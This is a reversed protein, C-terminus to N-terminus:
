HHVYRATNDTRTVLRLNARVRYCPIQPELSKRLVNMETANNVDYIRMDRLKGDAHKKLKDDHCIFYECWKFYATYM